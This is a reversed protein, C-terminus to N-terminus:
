LARSVPSSAWGLWHRRGSQLEHLAVVISMDRWVVRLMEVVGMTGTSRLVMLRGTKCDRGFTDFVLVLRFPTELVALGIGVVPRMIGSKGM